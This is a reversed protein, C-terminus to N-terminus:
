QQFCYLSRESACSSTTGVISPDTWAKTEFCYYAIMSGLSSSESTWNSCSSAGKISGETTTNTWMRGAGFTIGLPDCGIEETYDKGNEDVTIARDLEADTLDAWDDAIKQGWLNVYPVQSHQLRAGASTTSDSLWAKFTGALEANDALNQCIQDAGSLGGLNGNYEDSTLFVMCNGTDSTQGGPVCTGDDDCTGNVTGNFCWEDDCATGMAEFQCDSSCCDGDETNGDDCQEGEAVVGNGCYDTVASEGDDGGCGALCVMSLFAVIVLSL